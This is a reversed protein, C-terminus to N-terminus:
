RAAQWSYDWPPESVYGFGQISVCSVTADTRVSRFTSERICTDGSFRQDCFLDAGGPLVVVAQQRLCRNPSVFDVELHSIGHFYVVQLAALLRLLDSITAGTLSDFPHPFPPDSM